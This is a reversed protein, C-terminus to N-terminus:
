LLKQPRDDRADPTRAKRLDDRDETLSLIPGETPDRRHEVELFSLDLGPYTVESIPGLLQDPDLRTGYHDSVVRAGQSWGLAELVDANAKARRLADRFSHRFSYFAQREELAIAKPLYLERFWRLPYSAANEYKDLPTDFLRARAGRLKRLEVFELFGLRILQPHIPVRRRSSQTKLTRKPTDEGGAEDTVEIYWTGLETRRVDSVLAQCAENPRLGAFLMVPALWFRWGGYKPHDFPRPSNEAAAKYLSSGFFQVLQALTFARRKDALTISDRHLPRIGSAPNSGLLGKRVALDLIRRFVALNQDQTIAGLCPRGEAEGRRIADGVAFGKYHKRWNTPVKALARRVEMCRDYDITAVPVADGVLERILTVQAETRDRSKKSVQNSAAEEADERLFQTALEGFSAAPREHQGFLEDFFAKERDGTLRALKRKTLETLARSLLDLVAPPTTRDDDPSGSGWWALEREARAIWAGSRPDDLDKHMQLEYAAECIQEQRDEEDVPGHNELRREMLADKRAVYDQVLRVIHVRDVDLLANGPAPSGATNPVKSISGSAAEFRANWEVDRLDRRLRAEKLDRTSLSAFIMSRGIAVVCDAPVRRRYYWVGDRNQLHHNKPVECM